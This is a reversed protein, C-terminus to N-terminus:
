AGPIHTFLLKPFTCWGRLASSRVQWTHPAALSSRSVRLFSWVARIDCAPGDGQLRLVHLM